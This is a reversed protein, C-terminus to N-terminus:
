AKTTEFPHPRPGRVQRASACLSASALLPLLDTKTDEQMMKMIEMIKMIKKKKADDDNM